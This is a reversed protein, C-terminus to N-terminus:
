RAKEKWRARDCLLLQDPLYSSRADKLPFGPPLNNKTMVEVALKYWDGDPARLVDELFKGNTTLPTLYLASIPQQDDYISYFSKQADQTLLICKRDGYWAVAWPMDSMMLESKDLLKASEQIWPPLYPPYVLPYTRPPLLAFVMSGCAVLAAGGVLLKRFEPLLGEFQDLLSYFLGAGYMIVFPAVLVLLDEHHLPSDKSIHTAGFSQVVALVALSSLVFIRLRGLAPNRFPILLGALFFASLWSGGLKPLGSEFVERGQVLGKRLIDKFEVKSVEPNQIRELRNGEFLPTEQYVAYGPVGFFTGSLQYNRFLWPTLLVLFLGVLCTLVLWRRSGLYFVCFLIVPLLLWAASYRTLAALGLMSGTFLGWRVYWGTSRPTEERLGGELVVLGWALGVLELMLLSTSLGSLSYKWFLESGFFAVVTFWAVEADFLRRALRFLLLATLFFFIQNLVGIMVEPQYRWFSSTIEYNLPVLRMWAALLLPYVPPNALDPHPGRSLRTEISKQHDVMRVTLPRICQTTFGKGEAINRALQAAEMAEPAHLNRADNLDYWVTLVVLALLGVAVKILKAGDGLELKHILEQIQM